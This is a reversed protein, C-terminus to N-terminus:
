KKGKSKHYEDRRKQKQGKKRDKIEERQKKLEDDTIEFSQGRGTTGPRPIVKTKASAYIETTM